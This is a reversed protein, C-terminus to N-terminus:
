GLATISYTVKQETADNPNHLSLDIGIVRSSASLTSTNCFSTGRFYVPDGTSTYRYGGSFTFAFQNDFDDTMAGLDGSFTFANANTPVNVIKAYNDAKGTDIDTSSSTRTNVWSYANTAAFGWIDGNSDVYIYSIKIDFSTYTIVSANLCIRFRNYGKDLLPRLDIQIGPEYEGLTDSHTYTVGGNFVVNSFMNTILGNVQLTSSPNTTGIGVNGNSTIRLRESPSGGVYGTSIAVSTDPYSAGAVHTNFIAGIQAGAVRDGNSNISSFSLHTSNGNTLDLNSLDLSPSTAFGSSYTTSSNVQSALIPAYSNGGSYIYGTSAGNVLATTTSTSGNVSLTTAPSNTGIGVNGSSSLTMANIVSSARNVEFHWSADSSLAGGIGSKAYMAPGNINGVQVHTLGSSAGAGQLKIIGTPVGTGADVATGVTLNNSSATTGIGVYASSQNVTISETGSQTKWAGYSGNATISQNGASDGFYFNCISENYVHLMGLPQNTGIGVYGNGQNVTISETGSQTKWVGYSSSVAFSQYGSGSDIRFDGGYVHLRTSPNTTGVGVNAGTFYSGGLGKVAFYEQSANQVMLLAKDTDTDQNVQIKMGLGEVSTNLISAAYAYDTSSQVDLKVGPNNTGIGVSGTSTIRMKETNDTYFQVTGDATSFMGGDTEGGSRFSYGGTGPGGAAVKVEGAVDLKSGPNNTGIGVSGASTIRMKETNDTYFQVTGDATSFMGGDTEGGSRFSYGGTGPGGAAAKIEGSVDLKTSPSTTGIGINGDNGQIRMLERPGSGGENSLGFVMDADVWVFGPTSDSKKQVGIIGFPIIGASSPSGGWDQGFFGIRNYSNVDGPGVSDPTNVLKLTYKTDSWTPELVTSQNYIATFSADNGYVNLVSTPTTTGIGVYGNNAIRMITTGDDRFDAIPQVGNQNVILAPGTNDNSIYFQDTVQVNTDMYTTNGLVTFNGTVYLNGEVHLKQIPTLTGIGVNNNTNDVFLVTNLNINGTTIEPNASM